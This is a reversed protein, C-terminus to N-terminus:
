NVESPTPTAVLVATVILVLAGIGLEITASRRVRATAADTGLRPRVFRWNYAGTAIVGALAGLKVLLVRGYTSTWLAAVSELRLWASVAGSAVVLGACTLAVPSFAEVLARVTVSREVDVSASVGSLGVIVVLLLSGLWGAASLVHLTDAGVAIMPLHEAAGAHGAFSYTAALVLGFLAAGWWAGRGARGVMLFALALAASAAVHVIWTTGWRTHLATTAMVSTMSEDAGRMMASQLYLRALAAIVLVLAAIVGARAAATAFRETAIADLAATDLVFLRFTITGIVALAAAFSVARAGIYVPTNASPEDEEPAAARKPDRVIFFVFTGQSPHGDSAATKWGVTYRGPSLTGAIAVHVALKSEDCEVASVKIVHGASDTLSVRTLAIEPAESYWLRIMAPVVTLRANAAPTSKTLRAHASASPPGLLSGCFVAAFATSIQVTM